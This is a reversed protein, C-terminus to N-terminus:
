SCNKILMLGNKTFRNSYLISKKKKTKDIFADYVVKKATAKTKSNRKTTRKKKKTLPDMGLYDNSMYDPSGGKKTCKKINDTM